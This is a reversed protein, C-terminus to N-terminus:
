EEERLHGVQAELRGLKQDIRDLREDVSGGSEERLYFYGLGDLFAAIVFLNLLLALVALLIERGGPIGQLPLPTPLM